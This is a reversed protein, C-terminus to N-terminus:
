VIVFFLFSPSVIGYITMWLQVDSIWLVSMTSLPRNTPVSDVVCMFKLIHMQFGVINNLTYLLVAEVCYVLLTYLYQGYKIIITIIIIIIFLYLTILCLSLFSCPVKLVPFPYKALKKLPYYQYERLPYDLDREWNLFVVLLKYVVIGSLYCHM